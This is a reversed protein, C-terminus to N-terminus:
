NLQHMGCLSSHTESIEEHLMTKRKRKLPPQRATEAADTDEMENISIELQRKSHIKEGIKRVAERVCDDSWDLGTRIDMPKDGEGMNKESCVIVDM